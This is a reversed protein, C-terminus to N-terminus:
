SATSLYVSYTSNYDTYMISLNYGDKDAFDVMDDMSNSIQWGMSVCQQVYAQMDQLTAGFVDFSMSTDSDMLDKIMPSEPKPLMTARASDAPWTSLPTEDSDKNMKKSIFDYNMTAIANTKDNMYQITMMDPTAIDLQSQNTMYYIGYACSGTNSDGPKTSQYVNCTLAVDRVDQASPKASTDAYAQTIQEDTVDKKIVYKINFETITYKTNNTYSINIRREGNDIVPETKWPVQDVTIDDDSSSKVKGTEKTNTSGSKEPSQSQQADPAGCGAAFVLLSGCAITATFIRRLSIM